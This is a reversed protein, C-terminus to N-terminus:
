YGNKGDEIANDMEGLGVRYSVGNELSPSGTSASNVEAHSRAVHHGGSPRQRPDHFCARSSTMKKQGELSHTRDKVAPEHEDFMDM